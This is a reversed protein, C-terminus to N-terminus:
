HGYTHGYGYAHGYFEWADTVMQHLEPRQPVWGLQTRALEASAVLLAPDGARRGAIEVPVDRGTVERVVDIVRRNSFGRGNGLNFVRHTGGALTPLAALHAAALDSVYIYDRVCTGDPTPYDAGFLQLKDRVGAAIALPKSVSEGASIYAAFHLVGDYSGDLVRDAADHVRGRIFRAGPPIAVEHGGSLDDLIVVDDGADVLLHSVVSGIYGAGGTVLWKV